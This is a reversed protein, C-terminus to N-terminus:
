ARWDIVGDPAYAILPHLDSDALNMRVPQRAILMPVGLARLWENDDAAALPRELGRGVIVALDCCDFAVGHQLVSATDLGLILAGVRRNALLAQTV